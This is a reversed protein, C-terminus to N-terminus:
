SDPQSGPQTPYRRHEFLLKAIRQLVTIVPVAIIMGIIGLAHGGVIISAILLAPHLNNSKGVALPQIAVLDLLKVALYLVIVQAIPFFSKFQVAAVLVAAAGGIIPGLYPVVNALGTVVGLLLPYNVGLLALGLAAFVGVVMGEVAVGRLYRGVTSDLECWVAVTTEIHGAPLRDLVFKVIRRSDRLFFYSFFPILVGALLISALHGLLLPVDALQQEIFSNLKEYRVERTSFLGDAAPYNAVVENQLADVAEDFRQGFSPLNRSLTNLEARLLPLVFYATILFVFGICLYIAAVAVKRKILASEAVKVIPNILYAVTASLLLVLVLDQSIYVLLAVLAIALGWLISPPPM